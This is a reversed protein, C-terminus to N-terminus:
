RISATTHLAKGRHGQVERAEKTPYAYLLLGGYLHLYVPVSLPVACVLLCKNRCQVNIHTGPSHFLSGIGHGEIADYAIPLRDLDAPWM